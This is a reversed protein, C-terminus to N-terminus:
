KQGPYDPHLLFLSDQINAGEVQQKKMEYFISKLGRKWWHFISKSKMFRVDKINYHLITGKCMECPEYTSYLTLHKRDLNSFATNGMRVSAENIANIEAHGTLNNNGVVTNYGRGIISDRYVLISGVPVDGTELAKAGLNALEKKYHGPVTEISRVAYFKTQLVIILFFLFLFVFILPFSKNKKQAEM